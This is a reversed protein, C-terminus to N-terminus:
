TIVLSGYMGASYHGPVNCVIVYKGPKLDFTHSASKGAATEGIEGVSDDEGVTGDTVKLEGPATDTKLVVLEHAMTGTNDMTITLKGAPATIASPAFSMEAAKITLTGSSADFAAAPTSAATSMGPMDTHDVKAPAAATTDTKSDGCASLALVGVTLCSVLLRNRM